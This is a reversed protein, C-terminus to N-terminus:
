ANQSTKATLFWSTGLHIENEHIISVVFIRFLVFLKPSCEKKASFIKGSTQGAKKLFHPLNFLM